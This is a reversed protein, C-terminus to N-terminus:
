QWVVVLLDLWTHLRSTRLGPTLCTSKLANYLSQTSTHRQGAWHLSIEFRNPSLGYHLRSSNGNNYRPDQQSLQSKPLRFLRHFWSTRSLFIHRVALFVRLPTHLLPLSIQLTASYTTHLNSVTLFNRSSNGNTLNRSNSYAQLRWGMRMRQWLDHTVFWWSYSTHSLVKISLVGWALAALIITSMDICIRCSGGQQSTFGSECRAVFLCTTTVCMFLGSERKSQYGTHKKLGCNWGWLWLHELRSRFYCWAFAHSM